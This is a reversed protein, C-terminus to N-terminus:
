KERPVWAFGIWTFLEILTGTIDFEYWEHSFKYRYPYAHHNNHFEEGAALGYTPVNRSDGIRERVAGHEDIDGDKFRQSGWAHAIGNVFGAAVLPVVMMQIAWVVLAPIGFLFLEVILTIRIGWNRLPGAFVFRELFDDPTGHGYEALIQPNNRASLRYIDAGEFFVKRLGLHRPSHPDDVTDCLAHHKRHISVWEKTSMGTFLWLISRLLISIPAIFYVAGHTASRHLYASLAFLTTFYTAIAVVALYTLSPSLAGHLAVYMIADFDM